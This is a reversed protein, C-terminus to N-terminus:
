RDQSGRVPMNARYLVQAQVNGSLEVKDNFMGLHRMALTLAAGKDFIKVKKTTISVPSDEEGGGVKTTTTDIGALAAATDADLEQPLKLTGDDNFAKRIDSFALRALEQLVRDQTIHTRTERDKMAKEVASRISVKALLRAGQENATRPSYGARVAAKTANLDILYEQVFRQQKDTIATM